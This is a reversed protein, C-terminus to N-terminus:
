LKVPGHAASIRLIKNNLGRHCCHPGADLSKLKAKMAGYKRKTNESWGGAQYSDDGGWGSERIQSCAVTLTLLHLVVSNRGSVIDVFVCICEGVLCETGDSVDIFVLSHSLMTMMINCVNSENKSGALDKRKSWLCSFQNRPLDDHIYNNYMYKGNMPQIEAYL